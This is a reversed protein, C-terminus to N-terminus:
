LYETIYNLLNFSFAWDASLILTYNNEVPAALDNISLVVCFSFCLEKQLLCAM